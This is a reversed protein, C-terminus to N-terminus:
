SLALLNTERKKATLLYRRIEDPYVVLNDQNDVIMNGESDVLFGAIGVITIRRTKM